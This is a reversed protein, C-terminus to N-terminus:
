GRIPPTKPESILQVPSTEAASEDDIRVSLEPAAPLHSPSLPQKHQRQRADGHAAFQEALTFDLPNPQSPRLELRESVQAPPTPASRSTPPQQAVITLAPAALTEPVPAVTTDHQARYQDFAKAVAEHRRNQDKRISPLTNGLGPANWRQTAPDLYSYTRAWVIADGHKMGHQKAQVLRDVYGGQELAARPSQNALDLGNLIEGLSMNLEAQNAQRAIQKGQRELRKLQKRDAEEPSHAGHQYSFTGMNWVGNGPDTHGYYARTPQGNATRTGEASGIVRAVLSKSGGKYIWTPLNSQHTLVPKPPSLAVVDQTPAFSLGIPAQKHNAAVVLNRDRLLPDPQLVRPPPFAAQPPPALIRASAIVNHPLAGASQTIRIPPRSAEPPIPLPTITPVAAAESAVKPIPFNQAGVSRAALEAAPSKPPLNKDELDFNVGM